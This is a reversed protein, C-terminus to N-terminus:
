RDLNISHHRVIQDVGLRDDRRHALEEARRLERLEHVLGVGEGLNSVLAAQRSEAWAAQGTLPGAELHTVHVRGMVPPNTRDLRRFPWVDAQDVRQGSKSPDVFVAKDLSGVALDRFAFHGFLHDIERGHFLSIKYDSLSVGLHVLGAPKRGIQHAAPFVALEDQHPGIVDIQHVDRRHLEDGHGRRQDREQFVVIGVAGQHARVHLALRHRQHAGLRGKDAGAHLLDHGAIRPRGDFRAAGTNDILHIGRPDDDPDGFFHLRALRADIDVPQLLELAGVLVCADVLSRQHLDTILDLLAVDYGVPRRGVEALQGQTAVHQDGEHGPVTVIELIRDQNGLADDLFVGEGRDMDLFELHHGAVGFQPRFLDRPVDGVDALFAQPMQVFRADDIYAGFHVRPIDQDALDRGLALARHRGLFFEQAGDEAFLCRVHAISRHTQRRTHGSGNDLHPDKVAM